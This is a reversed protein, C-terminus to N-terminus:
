NEAIFCENITLSGKPIRNDSLYIGFRGIPNVNKVKMEQVINGGRDSYNNQCTSSSVSNESFKLRTYYWTDNSVLLFQNFANGISLFGLEKRTDFPNTYCNNSIFPCIGMFANGGFAKWKIYVTKGNLNYEMDTLLFTGTRTAMTLARIGDATQEYVGNMMDQYGREMAFMKWNDTNVPLRVTDAAPVANSTITFFFSLLVLTLRLCTSKKM